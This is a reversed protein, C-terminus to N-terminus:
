QKGSTISCISEELWRTVRDDVLLIAGSAETSAPFGVYIFDKLYDFLDIGISLLPAEPKFSSYSLFIELNKKRNEYDIWATILNGGKLNVGKLISNDTKISVLNDIDLGVYDEDPDNFHLDQRTDFEIAIFKNKSLQSSNVLGLYGGPGGLTMELRHRISM